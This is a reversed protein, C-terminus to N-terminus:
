IDVNLSGATSAPVVLAAVRPLVPPIGAGVAGKVPGVAIGLQLM